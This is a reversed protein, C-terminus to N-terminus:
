EDGDFISNSIDKLNQRTFLDKLKFSNLTGVPFLYPYGCSKLSALHIIYVYLGFYFGPLGMLSSFVVLIIGWITVPIYLDPILFTSISAISVVVITSQSAIGAGVAADGLILAGVISLAQGTPQPLRVGAERLLQFFGLMLIVEVFTPFPVGVRSSSLRFVFKTPILAFHYTTMAVYLGPLFTAFFMAVFRQIRTINATIKNAYYDDSVQFNEIFFFPAYLVNSSGDVIVAVRGELVKAAIVDPKESAGLVDFATKGSLFEEEIYNIDLIYKIDLGQVKKRILDVLKDPSIGKLYCITVSTNSESGIIYNEFKLNENRIRRRILSVADILVENFGEQPGKLSAETIPQAISRKSFGKADVFIIETCNEITIIVDGSLVHSVADKSDVVTGTTCASLIREILDKTDKIDTSKIIPQIIFESIFRSDSLDDIYILNLKQNEIILERFKVDFSGNLSNKISEFLYDSM